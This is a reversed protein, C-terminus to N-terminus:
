LRSGRVLYLVVCIVLVVILIGGGGAAGYHSYGYYGGGLGGFLFLLVIAVILLDMLTERQNYIKGARLKNAPFLLQTRVLRVSSGGRRCGWHLSLNARPTSSTARPRRTFDRGGWSVRSPASLEGEPWSSERRALCVRSSGPAEFRAKAPHGGLDLQMNDGHVALSRHGNLPDCCSSGKPVM